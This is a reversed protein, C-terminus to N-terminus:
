EKKGFSEIRCSKVTVVKKREKKKKKSEIEMKEPMAEVEFEPGPDASM